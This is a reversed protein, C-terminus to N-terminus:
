FTVLPRRAENSPLDAKDVLLTATKVQKRTTRGPKGPSPRPSSSPRFSPILEEEWKQALAGTSGRRKPRREKVTKDVAPEKTTNRHDDAQFLLDLDNLDLSGNSIAMWKNNKTSTPPLPKLVPILEEDWKKALSGTSGRRKPKTEQRETKCFLPPPAPTKKSKNGKPRAKNAGAKKGSRPSPSPESKRSKLNSQVLDAPSSKQSGQPSGHNSGEGVYLMGFSPDITGYSAQLFDELKAVETTSGGAGKRDRRRRSRSPDGKPSASPSDNENMALNGTAGFFKQKRTRRPSPSISYDHESKKENKRDASGNTKKLLGKPKHKVKSEKKGSRATRELDKSKEPQADSPEKKDLNENKSSKEPVCSKSSSPIKGRNVSPSDQINTKGAQSAKCTSNNNVGLAVSRPSCKV